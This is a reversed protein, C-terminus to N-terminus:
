DDCDVPAQATGRDNTVVALNLTALFAQHLPASASAAFDPHELSLPNGDIQTILGGAETVILLGAAIDWIKVSSAWYGDLRGAAVYSLNLAASGLRRVSQSAHLVELFRAIELSGRSVNPSFSGAIMAEDMTECGSTLIREGNLTAGRGKAAAFCEKSVPDFVVGCIIEGQHQLAVSVAYNALGHVYNSTGDLPDVVWRYLSPNAKAATSVANSDEEGLFDHDPHAALILERIAKQSALDAETVLDHRAKERYRVRGAYHNLIDGGLRAAAECLPLFDDM